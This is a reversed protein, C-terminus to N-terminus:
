SPLSRNEWQDMSSKLIRTNYPTLDKGKLRLRNPHLILPDKKM